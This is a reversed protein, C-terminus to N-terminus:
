PAIAVIGWPGTGAKIHKTVTLSALDVETVDNSPGNASYLKKGDPSLTIGWPRAGVEVSGSVTDSVTDLVFVKHGRGTSVYAKKSDLSIIVTMPRIVGIEGIQVEKIPEHKVADVVTVSGATEGTVYARSGNALFAVSRPRGGVKFVKIVRATEIDIVTVTSDTESTVYVFKGNPSVKVGEPEEGVPLTHTVLGKAIDVISMSASNENAVFLLKGDASVDFQEPDPGSAIVKMLKNQRVDFVGIGDAKPDAPPLSKEDVGPGAVPSGSLTVYITHHDPSSRIGRPRKGLPITAVAQGREPDIVSLDGSLENTAYVRFGGSDQPPLFLLVIPLLLYSRISFGLSIKLM